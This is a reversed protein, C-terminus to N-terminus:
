IAIEGSSTSEQPVTEQDESLEENEDPKKSSFLIDMTVDSVNIDAKIRQIIKQFEKILKDEEEFTMKLENKDKLIQEEMADNSENLEKKLYIADKKKTEIEDDLEKLHKIEENITSLENDYEELLNKLTELFKEKQTKLEELKSKAQQKRANVNEKFLNYFTEPLVDPNDLSLFEKSNNISGSVISSYNKKIWNERRILRGMWAEIEEINKDYIQINKDLLDIKKCNNIIKLDVQRINEMLAQRKKEKLDIERSFTDRLSMLDKHVSDDESKLYELTLDLNEGGPLSKNNEM